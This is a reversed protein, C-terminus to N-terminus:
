GECVVRYGLVGGSGSGTSNFTLNWELLSGSNIDDVVATESGAFEDVCFIQPSRTTEKDTVGELLYDLTKSNLLDMNQISCYSRAEDLESVSTYKEPKSIFTGDSFAFGSNTKTLSTKGDALYCSTGVKASALWFESCDHKDVAVSSPARSIDEICLTNFKQQEYRVVASNNSFDFAAIEFDRQSWTAKGELPVINKSGNDSTPSATFFFRNVNQCSTVGGLRASFTDDVFEQLEEVSPLRLGRSICHARAEHINFEQGATPAYIKIGKGSNSVLGFGDKEKYLTKHTRTECISDNALNLLFFDQCSEVAWAQGKLLISSLFIASFIKKM